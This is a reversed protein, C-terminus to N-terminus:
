NSVKLNEKDLKGKIIFALGSIPSMLSGVLRSLLENRSPIDSLEITKEMGMYENEFVGGLIKINPNEKSAQRCIRGAAIEDDFSFAVALQEKTEKIKDALEKKGEKELSKELLTKKAVRLLCKAERLKDRLAFLSPSDVKTFDMLIMLKQKKVSETLDKIMKQKQERTKAM